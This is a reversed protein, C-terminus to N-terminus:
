LFRPWMDINLLLPLHDSPYMRTTLEEPEVDLMTKTYLTPNSGTVDQSGFCHDLRSVMNSLDAKFEDHEYGVFTGEVHKGGLTKAGKGLDQLTETLIERHKAGDKDPFFNFDGCILFSQGNAITKVIELLKICSKRKVEEDLAFHCNFVWFPPTREVIKGDSVFRFQSGMVIFGYGCSGPSTTSWTDSVIDPTDSLWKKVTQVMFFKDPKYLIAQGFSLLSANRYAVDFYYDKFSSLFQNVTKTADPLRRMEQLCVIDACTDVILKEVRDVRNNWKTEEYKEERRAQDVNYQLLKFSPTFSFDNTYLLSMNTIINVKGYPHISIHFIM